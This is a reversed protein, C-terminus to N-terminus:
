GNTKLEKLIEKVLEKFDSQRLGITRIESMDDNEYEITIRVLGDRDIFAEIEAGVNSRDETYIVRKGM